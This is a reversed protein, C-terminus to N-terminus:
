CRRMTSVMPFKLIKSIRPSITLVATIAAMIKATNESFIIAFSAHKTTFNTLINLSSLASITRLLSIRWSRSYRSLAAKKFCFLLIKRFVMRVLRTCIKAMYLTGNRIYLLKSREPKPSGSTIAKCATKYTDTDASGSGPARPTLSLPKRTSKLVSNGVARSGPAM